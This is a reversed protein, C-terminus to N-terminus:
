RTNSHDLDDTASHLQKSLYIRGNEQRGHVSDNGVIVQEQIIVRITDKIKQASFSDSDGFVLRVADKELQSLRRPGHITLGM